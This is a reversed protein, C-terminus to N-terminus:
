FEATFHDVLRNDFDEGGLDSDSATAVVEIIKDWIAFLTVDFAGGGLDLILVKREDTIRTDLTYAIAAAATENVIRLINLGCLAGAEKTAQRESDHFHGPVTVVANTIVRGLHFEATERMKALVM